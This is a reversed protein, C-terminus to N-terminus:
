KKRVIRSTSPRRPGLKPAHESLLFKFLQGIDRPQVIFSRGDSSSLMRRVLRRYFPGMGVPYATPHTSAFQARRALVAHERETLRMIVQTMRPEQFARPPPRRPHVGNHNPHGPLAVNIKSTAPTRHRPNQKIKAHTKAISVKEPNGSVIRGINTPPLDRYASIRILLPM